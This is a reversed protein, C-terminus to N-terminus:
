AYSIVLHSSNLRTSKRDQTSAYQGSPVSATVAAPATTDKSVLGGVTKGAGISYTSAVKIAGDALQALSAAPVTASWTGAGAAPATVTRGASDILTVGSASAGPQSVGSLTLDSGANAVNVM